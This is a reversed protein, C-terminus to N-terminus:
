RGAEETPVFLVAIGPEDAEDSIDMLADSTIADVSGPRFWWMGVSHWPIKDVRVISGEPMCALEAATTIERTPPRVGKALLAGALEYPEAGGGDFEWFILDTLTDRDNM